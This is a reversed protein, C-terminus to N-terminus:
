VLELKLRRGVAHAARALTELSVTHNEPDLPRDRQSRSTNMRRAMETKSLAGDQMAKEVQWALVRKIAAAWTLGPGGAGEGAQHSQAM